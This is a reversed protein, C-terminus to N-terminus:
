NQDIMEREVIGLAFCALAQLLQGPLHAVGEIAAHLFSAAVDAQQALQRLQAGGTRGVFHARHEVAQLAGGGVVRPDAQRRRVAAHESGGLVQEFAHVHAVAGPELGAAVAQVGAIGSRAGGGGLGVVLQWGAARRPAEDIHGARHRAGIAAHAAHQAHAHAPAPRPAQHVAHQRRGFLGVGGLNKDHAAVALDQQARGAHLLLPQLRGAQRQRMAAFRAGHALGPAVLAFVQAAVGEGALGAVGGGQRPRHDHALRQGHRECFGARLFALDQQQAGDEAHHQGSGGGDDRAAVRPREILQARLELPM